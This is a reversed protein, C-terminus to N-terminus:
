ALSMDNIARASKLEGSSLLNTVMTLLYFPIVWKRIDLLFVDEPDTAYLLNYLFGASIATSLPNPDDPSYCMYLVGFAACWLVMPLVIFRLRRWVSYCRYIQKIQSSFPIDYQNDHSGVVVADGLLTQLIYVANKIIFTTQTMDAFFDVPGGPFTDANIVFGDM